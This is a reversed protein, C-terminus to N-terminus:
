YFIISELMQCEIYEVTHDNIYSKQWSFFNSFYYISPNEMEGFNSFSVLNIHIESNFIHCSFCLFFKNSERIRNFQAPVWNWCAVKM